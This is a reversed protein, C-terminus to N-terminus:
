EGSKTNKFLKIKSCDIELLDIIPYKEVYHKKYFNLEITKYQGNRWYPFESHKFREAIANEATKDDSTM